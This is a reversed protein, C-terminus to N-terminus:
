KATGTGAIKNGNADFRPWFNELNLEKLATNLYKPEIWNDVTVPRRILKFDISQQVSKKLSNVAYEDLFPTNRDKLAYDIWDKKYDLYATGSQAWLKYQADRNAEESSWKDQKILATVVRQVVSPYKKEFDETVWFLLPGNLNPDKRIELIRKAVGRSELTWPSTITGDIDGTALSTQASYTDQSIIRFDKETFGYKRLLRGLILQQNTGKFVSITKGKLDALSKASSGAPVTFYVPGFRGATFLLKTKLGTSRAIIAPLDGNGAGFDVKGNALAENLAPGAGPFFIWKVKIGDKKFEDEVIGRLHASAVFSYGVKPKGGVGAGPVGLRIEVPKGVDALAPLGASVILGATAAILVRRTIQQM